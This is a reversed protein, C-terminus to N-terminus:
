KKLFQSIVIFVLIAFFMMNLGDRLGDAGLVSYGGFLLPEIIAYFVDTFLLSIGVICYSEKFTEIYGSEVSIIMFAIIFVIIMPIKLTLVISDKGFIFIFPYSTYFQIALLLSSILMSIATMICIRRLIIIQKKKIVLILSGISFLIILSSGVWNIGFLIYGYSPIPLFSWLLSVLEAGVLGFFNPIKKNFWETSLTQM